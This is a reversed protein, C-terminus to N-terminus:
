LFPAMRQWTGDRDIWHRKGAAAVHVCLLCMLVYVAGVHVDKALIKIHPNSEVLAPLHIYGFWQLPFGAASNYLWGSLPMVWMVIYFAVRVIRAAVRQWRSSVVSIPAADILRWLSRVGILVLLSIGLSKHLTYARYKAFGLPLDVMYFGLSISAGYLLLMGWHLWRAGVGWRDVSSRLRQVKPRLCLPRLKLGFRFTM